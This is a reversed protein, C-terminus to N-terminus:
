RWIANPCPINLLSHELKISGRGIGEVLRSRAVYRGTVESADRDWRNIGVLYNVTDKQSNVAYYSMFEPEHVTGKIRYELTEPSASTIRGSIRDGKQKLFVIVPYDDGTDDSHVIGKWRGSWDRKSKKLFSLIFERYSVILAAVIAGIAGILAAIIVPDIIGEL